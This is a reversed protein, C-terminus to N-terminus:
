DHHQTFAPDTIVVFNNVSYPTAVYADAQPDNLWRGDSSFYRFQYAKGLALDVTIQWLDAKILQMPHSRRNWQNFDGVLYLQDAWIDVPLSFTIRVLPQDDFMLFEKTIM